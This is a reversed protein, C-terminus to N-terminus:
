FEVCCIIPNDEVSINERSKIQESLIELERDSMDGPHLISYLNSQVDVYSPWFNLGGYLSLGEPSIYDNESVSHHIINNDMDMVVYNLKGDFIYNIWVLDNSIYFSKINAIDKGLHKDRQYGDQYVLRSPNHEGFDLDLFLSIGKDSIKYIENDWENRFLYANDLRFYEPSAFMAIDMTLSDSQFETESILDGTLTYYQIFQSMAGDGTYNRRIALITDPKLISVSQLNYLDNFQLDSVLHGDLTWNQLKRNYLYLSHDTDNYSVRGPVMYEEPGQGPKGIYNLFKGNRDFRFLRRNSEIIINDGSILKIVPYSDILISDNTELAILSVRKCQEEVIGTKSVDFASRVSIINNDAPSTNKCSSITM